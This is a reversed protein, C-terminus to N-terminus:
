CVLRDCKQSRNSLGSLPLIRCCNIKWSLFDTIRMSSPLFDYAFQHYYEDTVRINSMSVLQDESAFLEPFLPKMLNEKAIYSRALALLEELRKKTQASGIHKVVSTQQNSRKVVQVATAGSATKTTRITLV